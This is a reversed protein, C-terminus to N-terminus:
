RSPLYSTLISLAYRSPKLLPRANVIETVARNNDSTANIHFSCVINVSNGFYNDPGLFPNKRKQPITFVNERKKSICYYKPDPSYDILHYRLLFSYKEKFKYDVDQKLLKNGKYLSKLIRVESKDLILDKHSTSM